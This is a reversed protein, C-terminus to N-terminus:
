TSLSLSLSFRLGSFITFMDNNETLKRFVRNCQQFYQKGRFGWYFNNKLDVPKILNVTQSHNTLFVM